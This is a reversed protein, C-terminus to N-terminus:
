KAKLEDPSAQQMEPLTPLDAALDRSAIMGNEQNKPTEMKPYEIRPHYMGRLTTTFSDALADLDKLTLPTKDLQRQAVRNEIVSRIITKLEDEDKPREARVRAECGDALM